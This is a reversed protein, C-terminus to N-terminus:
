YQTLYLIGLFVSWTQLCCCFHKFLETCFVSSDNFSFFYVHFLSLSLDIIQMSFSTISPTKKSMVFLKSAIYEACVLTVCFSSAELACVSLVSKVIFSPVDQTFCNQFPLLLLHRNLSKITSIRCKKKKEAFVM